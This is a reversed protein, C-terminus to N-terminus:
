GFARVNLIKLVKEITNQRAVPCCKCKIGDAGVCRVGCLPCKCEQLLELTKQRRFFRNMLKVSLRDWKTLYSYEWVELNQNWRKKM